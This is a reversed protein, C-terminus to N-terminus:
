KGWFGSPWFVSRFGESRLRAFCRERTLWREIDGPVHTIGPAQAYGRVPYGSSRLLAEPGSTLRRAPNRGSELRTFMSM